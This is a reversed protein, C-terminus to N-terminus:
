RCVAYLIGESGANAASPTSTVWAVKHGVYRGDSAFGAHGTTGFTRLRKGDPCAFRLAAGAMKAGRDVKVTFGILVYGSPIAKGQRIARVGAADFPATAGAKLTPAPAVTVTTPADGSTAALATGGAGLVATAALAAAITRRTHISSM